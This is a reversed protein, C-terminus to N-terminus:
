ADSGTSLASKVSISFQSSQTPRLTSLTAAAQSCPFCGTSYMLCTFALRCCQLCVALCLKYSFVSGFSGGAM